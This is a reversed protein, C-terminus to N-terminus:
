SYTAQVQKFHCEIQRQFDFTVRYTIERMHFDTFPTSQRDPTILISIHLSDLPVEKKGVRGPKGRLM